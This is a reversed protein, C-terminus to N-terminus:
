ILQAPLGPPQGSHHEHCTHGLVRTGLGRWCVKGPLCLMCGPDKKGHHSKHASRQRGQTKAWQGLEPGPPRTRTEGRLHSSLPWMHGSCQGEQKGQAPRPPMDWTFGVRPVRVLGPLSLWGPWAAQLVRPDGIAREGPPAEQHAPFSSAEVPSPVCALRPRWGEAEPRPKM